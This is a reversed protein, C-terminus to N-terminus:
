KLLCIDYYLVLGLFLISEEGLEGSQVKDRNVELVAELKPLLVSPM